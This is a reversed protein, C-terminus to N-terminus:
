NDNLNKILIEIYENAQEKNDFTKLNESLTTNDVGIAVSFLARVTYKITEDYTVLHGQTIIMAKELDVYDGCETKVWYM